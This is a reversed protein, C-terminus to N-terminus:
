VTADSCSPPKSNAGLEELWTDCRHAAQQRYKVKRESRRCQISSYGQQSDAAAGACQEHWQEFDTCARETEKTLMQFGRGIAELSTHNDGAKAIHGQTVAFFASCSSSVGGECRGASKDGRDGSRLILECRRADSEATCASLQHQFSVVSSSIVILTNAHPKYQM